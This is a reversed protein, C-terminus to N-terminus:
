RTEMALAPSAETQVSARRGTRQATSFAGSGIRRLVVRAPDPRAPSADVRGLHGRLERINELWVATRSAGREACASFDVGSVELTDVDKAYLGTNFANAVEGGRMVVHESSSLHVGEGADNDKLTLNLLRVTGTAGHVGVLRSGSRTITIGSLSADHCHVLEAGCRNGGPGELVGAQDVRGNEFSTNRPTRTAYSAEQAVYIGSARTRTINFDSVSVDSQGVVSIGRAASNAIVIRRATGGTGDPLRQYNVFALGDDGTHQCDVDEALSQSCNAFHVGDALTKRVRAGSVVPRICSEFLLGAGGFGEVAVHDVHLDTCGMVLVGAGFRIRQRPERRWALSVGSLTVGSLNRIELGSVSPDDGVLVAGGEFRVRRGSGRVQLTRRYRYTGAGVVLDGTYDTLARVLAATDDTDNDGRAGFSALTSAKRSAAAVGAGLTGLGISVGGLLVTRRHIIPQPRM